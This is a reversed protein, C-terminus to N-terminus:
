KRRREDSDISLGRLPLDIPTSQNDPRAHFPVAIAADRLAKTRVKTSAPTNSVPAHALRESPGSTADSRALGASMGAGETVGEAV